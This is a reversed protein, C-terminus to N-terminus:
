PQYIGVPSVTAPVTSGRLREPYANANKGHVPKRAHPFATRGPVSSLVVMPARASADRPHLEITSSWGELSTM